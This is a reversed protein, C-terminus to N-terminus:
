WYDAAFQKSKTVQPFLAGGKARASVSEVEKVSELEDFNLGNHAPPETGTMHPTHAASVHNHSGIGDLKEVVTKALRFLDGIGGAGIAVGVPSIPENSSQETLLAGYNGLLDTAKWDETREGVNLTLNAKLVAEIAPSVLSVEHWVNGSKRMDEMGTFRARILCDESSEEDIGIVLDQVEMVQLFLDQTEIRRSEDAPIGTDVTESPRIYRHRTWRKMLVKKIVLKSGKPIRTYIRIQKRAPIWIHDVLHRAAEDFEPNTSPRYTAGYGVVARADWIQGPFHLNVAGLMSSPTQITYGGQEDIVIVLLENAMTKCHFEYSINYESYDDDFLRTKGEAKSTKLGIIHDIDSGCVTVKNIFKTTPATVGTQPNFVAAWDAHTVLRDSSTKPMVPVCVLGIQMAFTLLGPTSEAVELSPSIAGFFSMLLGNLVKDNPLKQVQKGLQEKQTGADGETPKRLKPKGWAEELTAQKAARGQVKQGPNGAKQSMTRRYQRTESEVILQEKDRRQRREFDELVRQELMKCANGPHKSPKDFILSRSTNRYANNLIQLKEDQKSLNERNPEPTRFYDSAVTDSHATNGTCSSSSEPILAPADFHLPLHSTSITDAPTSVDILDTPRCLAISGGMPMNRSSNQARKLKPPSAKKLGYNSANFRPGRSGGRLHLKDEKGSLDNPLQEALQATDAQAPQKARRVKIGPAKPEPSPVKAPELQPSLSAIVGTKPEQDTVTNEMSTGEKVWRNVQKAKEPSLYPHSAAAGPSVLQSVAHFSESKSESTSDVARFEDGKGVEQFTFDNWLRSMEDNGCSPPALLNRPLHYDREEDFLYSITVFMQGLGANIGPNSDAIVRSSTVPCLSLYAQVSYRTSQIGSDVILNSVRPHHLHSLPNEIRTLKLLADDVDFATRGNVQLGKLDDVVLIETGTGKAIESLMEQHRQSSFCGVGGQSSIWFKTVRTMLHPIVESADDDLVLLDGRGTTDSKEMTVKDRSVVPLNLLRLRPTDLLDKNRQKEIFSSIVATIAKSYGEIKSKIVLVDEAALYECRCNLPPFARKLEEGLEQVGIDEFAWMSAFTLCHNHFDM